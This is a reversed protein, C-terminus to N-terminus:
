TNFKALFELRSSKAFNSDVGLRSLVPRNWVSAEVNKDRDSDRRDCFKWEPSFLTQQLFLTSARLLFWMIRQRQSEINIRFHYLKSLSKLNFILLCGRLIDKCIKRSERFSSLEDVHFAM